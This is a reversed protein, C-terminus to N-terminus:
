FIGFELDTPPEQCWNNIISFQFQQFVIVIFCFWIFMYTGFYIVM